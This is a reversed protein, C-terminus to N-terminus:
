PTVYKEPNSRFTDACQQSCFYYTTGEYEISAAATSSEVSMGCVPDVVKASDQTM